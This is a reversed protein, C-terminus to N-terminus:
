CDGFRIRSTLCPRRRGLFGACGVCFSGLGVGRRRLVRGVRARVFVGGLFDFVGARRGALYISLNSFQAARCWLLFGALVLVRGRFLLFRALGIGIGKLGGRFLGSGRGARRGVFRRRRGIQGVLFLRRWCGRDVRWACGRFVLFRCGAGFPLFLFRHLGIDM